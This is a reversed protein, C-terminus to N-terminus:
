MGGSECRTISQCLQPGHGFGAATDIIFVDVSDELESFARILGVHETSTLEVMSQTGSAPAIQIGYPGQVLVEQLANALCFM